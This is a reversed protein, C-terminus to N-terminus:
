LRVRRSACPSVCTTRIEGSLLQDSNRGSFHRHCVALSQPHCPFNGSEADGATVAQLHCGDTFIRHRNNHRAPQVPWGGTASEGNVASFSSFPQPFRGPMGDTVTRRHKGGDCLHCHVVGGQVTQGAATTIDPEESSSVRVASFSARWGDKVTTESCIFARAPSVNSSVAILRCFAPGRRCLLGNMGGEQAPFYVAKLMTSRSVSAFDNAASPVPKVSSPPSILACIFRPSKSYTSTAFAIACAQQNGHTTHPLFLM